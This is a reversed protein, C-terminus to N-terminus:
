STSGERDTKEAASNRLWGIAVVFSVCGGELNRPALQHTLKNPTTLM